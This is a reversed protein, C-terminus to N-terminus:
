RYSYMSGTVWLLWSLELVWWFRMLYGWYRCLVGFIHRM